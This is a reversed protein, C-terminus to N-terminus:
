PSFTTIVILIVKPTMEYGFWLVLLPAIAVAPVTQTLVIIPYFAKYAKDFRDMLVAAGFGTAIGLVLGMGAEALTIRANEMLAPFEKIFAGAVQVPSPLMFGEVLGLSVSLQWLILIALIASVSWLKSTISPSKRKLPLCMEKPTTLFRLTHLWQPRGQGSRLISASKVIDMLQDYDGEITTEFPGVYYNLGTSKIYDIVQDVIRILEEDNAAKPLSQIAVSANM